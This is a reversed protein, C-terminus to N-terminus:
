AKLFTNLFGIFFQFFFHFQFYVQTEHFQPLPACAAAPPSSCLLLLFIIGLFHEKTELKQGSPFFTHWFHTLILRFFMPVGASLPFVFPSTAEKKKSSQVGEFQFPADFSLSPAM